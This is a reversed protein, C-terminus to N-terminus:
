VPLISRCLEMAEQLARDQGLARGSKWASALEAAPLESRLREISRAIVVKEFTAGTQETLAASAGFLRAAEVFRKREVGISAAASIYAWGMIAAGSTVLTAGDILHQAATALEGTEIAVMALDFRPWVARLHEDTLATLAIASNFLDRAEEFNGQEQRYTGVQNLAIAEFSFEGISHFM